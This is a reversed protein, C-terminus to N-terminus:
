ETEERRKKELRRDEARQWEYQRKIHEYLNIGLRSCIADIANHSGMRYYLNNESWADETREHALIELAAHVIKKKSVFGLIEFM